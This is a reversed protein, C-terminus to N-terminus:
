TAAVNLQLWYRLLVRVAQGLEERSAVKGLYSNVGLQYARSVDSGLLSNTLMVVPLHRTARQGRIWELVEHGNRKPLQIDLFVLDPFPHAKRDAYEGKGSLYSIAAEGDTVVQLNHPIGSGDCALKIFFADDENDEVLLVNKPQHKTDMFGLGRKGSTM